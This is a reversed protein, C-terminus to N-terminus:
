AQVYYTLYGVPLSARRCGATEARQRCAKSTPHPSKGPDLGLIPSSSLRHAHLICYQLAQCSDGLKFLLPSLFVVRHVCPRDSQCSASLNSLSLGTRSKGPEQHLPNCSGSNSLTPHHCFGVRRVHHLCHVLHPITLPNPLSKWLICSPRPPSHKAHLPPIRVVFWFGCCGNIPM